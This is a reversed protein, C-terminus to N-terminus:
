KKTVHDIGRAKNSNQRKRGQKLSDCDVHNMLTELKSYRNSLVRIDEQKIEMVKAYGGTDIMNGM